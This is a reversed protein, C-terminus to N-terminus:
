KRYFAPAFLTVVTYIELRGLLMCLILCWKAADPLQSYNDMPGVSGFGPGVNGICALVATFATVMDLGCAALVLTSIGALGLWLAVFGWMAGIIEPAVVRGGLKVGIVARPHILRFIERHAHRGLVMVRMCKMGGATSGACGGIFMALVLICQSLPPWIEFNATAFGTTSLISAVQFAGYRAAQGPDGQYQGLVNVAVLVAFVAYLTVFLRFEPDRAMTRPRGLLVYYHLAFNLSALLMFMTIVWDIYASDFASVSANKTSFGGTAMTGFTHCLADFLNMGGFLLLVTQLLSFLLYVGWLTAATDKIRPRLKDPTPGPVEAKYLQMGSVGLFPLIALTLVIIGMGGLFHTMSRWFLLGHGVAEIDDLVSAGTTTFGSMSEFLCDTLSPLMGALYFPLAGAFAAAVWGLTTVALGERHNMGMAPTPNTCALFLALGFGISALMSVTLPGLGGDGYYLAFAIPFLMCLGVCAVLAGIIKLVFPWRM